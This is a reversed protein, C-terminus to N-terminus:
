LDKLFGRAEARPTDSLDDIWNGELLPHETSSRTFGGFTDIFLTELEDMDEDSFVRREKRKDGRVRESIPLLITFKSHPGSFTPRLARTDYEGEVLPRHSVQRVTVM